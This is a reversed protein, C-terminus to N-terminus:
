KLYIALKIFTQISAGGILIEGKQPDYFRLLLLTITSKGCGSEGVLGISTGKKITLSFDKLIWDKCSTPYKFWVNKFEIDGVDEKVLDFDGDIINSQQSGEVPSEIINLITNASKIGRSMDPANLLIISLYAAGFLGVAQSTFSHIMDKEDEINSALIFYSPLFNISVLFQSSSYFLGHKNAKWFDIEKVKTGNKFYRDIIADEHALSSITSYNAIWDSIITREMNHINGIPKPKIMQYKMIIIWSFIVGPLFGASVLGINWSYIFSIVISAIIWVIGQYILIYMEISAGNLDKAETSLISTLNGISNQKNDFYEIPKELMSKYVDKRISLTMGSTLYYLCFRTIVQSIIGFLGIGLMIPIYKAMDKRIESHSSKSYYISLKMSPIQYLVLSSAEIAAGFLWILIFWYPKNFRILKFLIEHWSKYKESSNFKFSTTQDISLLTDREDKSCLEEEIFNSEKIYNNNMSSTEQSNFLKYYLKGLKTLDLHNGREVVKGSKLVVILDANRITTLRHAIVVTSINTARNINEIAKQVYRENKNDLASTAEDLILLDPKSILARAIAIRQKQGGSLKSGLAGVNSDIGEPLKQVFEFAMATKLWEEIDEDTASPNANLLNNRISENFLWPEQGVYGILRRYDRLNINRLETGNVLISGSQPDYFRELLRAVTTKGSGSPGVLATVKGKKFTLSIGEVANNNKENYKFTVNNFVIDDIHDVTISSKDDLNIDPVHNITKFISGAWIM